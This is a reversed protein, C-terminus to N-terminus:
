TLLCPLAGPLPPPHISCPRRKCLRRSQSNFLHQTDARIAGLSTLQKKSKNIKNKSSGKYPEWTILRCATVRTRGTATVLPAAHMRTRQSGVLILLWHDGGHTRLHGNQVLADFDSTLGVLQPPGVELKTLTPKCHCLLLHSLILAKYAHYLGECCGQTM